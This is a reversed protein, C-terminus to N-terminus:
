QRIIHLFYGANKQNHRYIHFKVGIYIVSVNIAFMWFINLDGDQLTGSRVKVQASQGPGQVVNVCFSM